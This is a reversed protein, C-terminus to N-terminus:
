CVTLVCVTESRHVAGIKVIMFGDSISVIFECYLKQTQEMPNALQQYRSITIILPELLETGTIDHTECKMEVAQKFDTAWKFVVRQETTKKNM